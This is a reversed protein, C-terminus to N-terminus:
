RAAAWAIAAQLMAKLVPRLKAAAAEDFRWPPREEMYTIQSLELQIAHVGEAPSGHHRTIYGGKFRGNVVKTFAEGGAAEGVAADVAAVLDPDATKGGGTGINLDPLRGEFFRPVQSRISHADWLIAVGHRAKMDALARALREHYPRWYVDLRAGIAAEHPHWEPRYLPEGDFSDLPCLGTESAGPYLARGEPDRNLDVVYRSHFARISAAGLEGLFDYLRDVHWDTDPVQRALPTMAEAIEEPIVTGVHPMSVLLPVRGPTFRYDEM